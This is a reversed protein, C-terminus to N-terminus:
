FFAGPPLKFRAALARIQRVNLERKGSLVESVVSQAGIEPLDSQSLRHQDMLMRLMDTPSVAEQPYHIAEYQEIMAGLANVLDALPHGDNAAGQDLLANLSGIAQEYSEETHIPRLPVYAQLALFHHTIEAIVPNDTLPEM